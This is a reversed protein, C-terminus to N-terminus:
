QKKGATDNGTDSGKEKELQAERQRIRQERQTLEQEWSAYKNEIVTKYNLINPNDSNLSIFFMGIILVVLIMNVFLSIRLKDNGKDRKPVPQIGPRLIEEENREHSFTVYLPIPRINEKPIGSLLLKQQLEKLYEWGAPTQFVKEDLIRDYVSLMNQPNRNTMKSEFYAAKKRDLQAQQADEYTAYCYGEVFYDTKDAM